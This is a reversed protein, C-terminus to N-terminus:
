EKAGLVMTTVEAPPVVLLVQQLLKSDRLRLALGLARPWAGKGLASHVSQPTVEEGLDVPDFVLGADLSWLM